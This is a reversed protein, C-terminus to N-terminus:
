LSLILQPADTKRYICLCLTNFYCLRVGGGGGSHRAARPRRSLTHRPYGNGQTKCFCLRTWPIEVPPHRARAPFLPFPLPSSLILFPDLHPSTRPQIPTSADFVCTYKFSSLDRSACLIFVRACADLLLPQHKFNIFYSTDHLQTKQPQSNLFTRANKSNCLIEHALKQTTTWFCHCSRSCRFFGTKRLSPYIM